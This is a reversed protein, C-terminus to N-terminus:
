VQGQWPLNSVSELDVNNFLCSETNSFNHYIPVIVTSIREHKATIVGAECKEEQSESFCTGGIQIVELNLCNVYKKSFISVLLTGWGM